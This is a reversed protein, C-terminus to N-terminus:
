YTARAALDAAVQKQYEILDEPTKFIMQSNRDVVVTAAILDHLASNTQTAILSGCQAILLVFLIIPGVLGMTGWFIMEIIYVPIMTEIAFKGLVARAFLQPGNVKVKDSRMLCIGFIKKGLTQGDGLKLPVLFEWILLAFFIGLTTVLLSLKVLRNYVKLAQADANMADTAAEYRQLEEQSLTQYDSQSINFDVGYQAAYKEYIEDMQRNTNDYGLLGSLLVGIGIALIATLIIDFMWASIRKWMNAKQLDYVM